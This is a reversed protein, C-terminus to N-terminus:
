LRHGVELLKVAGDDRQLGVGKARETDVEFGGLKGGGGRGEHNAKM